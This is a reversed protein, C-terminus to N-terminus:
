IYKDMEYRSIIGHDCQYDGIRVPDSALAPVPILAFFLLFLLLPYINIKIFNM